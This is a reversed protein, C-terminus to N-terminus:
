KELGLLLADLKDSMYDAPVGGKEKINIMEKLDSDDLILMLKGSERLADKSAKLGNNDIGKRSIIVAISRLAKRYLYKETTYIQQQTIPDSYNKFEFIIYKSQFFTKCTEWFESLTDRKIKCILDFRYLNDNSNEQEGWMGLDTEFLYRLIEICCKEYDGSHQRGTPMDTLQNILTKSDLANNIEEIDDMDINPKKIVIDETSFDLIELMKSKLYDNNKVMYLLNHIDIISDELEKIGEFSRCREKRLSNSIVVLPKYGGDIFPKLKEYVKNLIHFNLSISTFYKIEVVYKVGNREILLDAEIGNITDRQSIVKYGVYEFINRIIEEFKYGNYVIQSRLIKKM